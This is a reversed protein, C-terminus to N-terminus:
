DEQDRGGSYSPNYFHAMPAPETRNKLTEKHFIVAHFSKEVEKNICKTPEPPCNPLLGLGVRGPVSPVLAKM